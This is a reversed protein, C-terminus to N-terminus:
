PWLQEGFYEITVPPAPPKPFALGVGWKVIILFVVVAVTIIIKNIRTEFYAPPM